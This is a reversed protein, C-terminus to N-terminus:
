KLFGCKLLYSDQMKSLVWTILVAWTQVAVRHTRYSSSYSDKEDVGVSLLKPPVFVGIYWSLRVVATGRGEGWASLHVCCICWVAALVHALQEHVSRIISKMLQWLLSCLCYHFKNPVILASPKLNNKIRHLWCVVHVSLLNDDECKNSLCSPEASSAIWFLARIDTTWDTTGTSYYYYIRMLWEHCDIHEIWIQPYGNIAVSDIYLKTLM